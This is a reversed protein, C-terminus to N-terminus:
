HALTAEGISIEPEKAPELRVSGSVNSDAPVSLRNGSTSL